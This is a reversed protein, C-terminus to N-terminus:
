DWTKGGAPVLPGELIFELGTGSTLRVCARRRRRWSDEIELAAAAGQGTRRRAGAGGGRGAKEPWTETKESRARRAGMMKELLRSVVRSSRTTTVGGARARATTVAAGQWGGDHEKTIAM